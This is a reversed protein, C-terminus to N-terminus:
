RNQIINHHQMVNQPLICALSIMVGGVAASLRIQWWIKTWRFDALSFEALRIWRLIKGASFRRLFFYLYEFLLTVDVSWYTVLTNNSTFCDRSKSVEQSVSTRLYLHVCTKYCWSFLSCYCTCWEHQCNNWNLNLLEASITQLWSFKLRLM